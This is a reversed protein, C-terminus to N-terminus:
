NVVQLLKEQASKLADVFVTNKKVKKTRLAKAIAEIWNKAEDSKKKPSKKSDGELASVKKELLGSAVTPTQKNLRMLYGYFKMRKGTKILSFEVPLLRALEAVAAIQTSTPAEVLSGVDLQMELRPHLVDALRTLHAVSEQNHGNRQIALETASLLGHLADTDNLLQLEDIASEVDRPPIPPVVDEVHDAGHWVLDSDTLLVEIDRIMFNKGGHLMNVVMMVSIGRNRDDARFVQYNKTQPFGKRGLYNKYSSAFPTRLARSLMSNMNVYFVNFSAHQGNVELQLNIVGKSTPFSKRELGLETLRAENILIVDAQNRPHQEALRRQVERQMSPNEPYILGSDAAFSASTPGFATKLNDLKRPNRLAQSFVSRAFYRRKFSKKGAFVAAHVNWMDYWGAHWNGKSRGVGLTKSRPFAILRRPKGGKSYEVPAGVEALSRINPETLSAVPSGDDVMYQTDVFLDDTSASVMPLLVMASETPATKIDFVHCEPRHEIWNAVACRDSCYM